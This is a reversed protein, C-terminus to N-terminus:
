SRPATTVLVDCPPHELFSEAVSCIIARALGTRALTGLAILDPSLDEITARLAARAHGEILWPTVEVADPLSVIQAHREQPRTPHPSVHLPAPM